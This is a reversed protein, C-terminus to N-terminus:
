FQLFTFWQSILNIDFQYALQAALKSQTFEVLGWFAATVIATWIMWGPISPAYPSKRIKFHAEGSDQDGRIYYLIWSSNKANGRRKQPGIEFAQGSELLANNTLPEGDSSVLESRVHNMVLREDDDMSIDALTGVGKVKTWRKPLNLSKPIGKSSLSVASPLTVKFRTGKKWKMQAPIKVFLIRIRKLMLWVFIVLFGYSILDSLYYSFPGVIPAALQVGVLPLTAPVSGNGTVSIIEKHPEVTFESRITLPIKGMDSPLAIKGASDVPSIVLELSTPNRSLPFPGYENDRVPAPKGEFILDLNAFHAGEVVFKDDLEVTFESDTTYNASVDLASVQRETSPDWFFSIDDAKLVVDINPKIFEVIVDIELPAIADTANIRVLGRYIGAKLLKFEPDDPNPLNVLVRLDLGTEPISFSTRGDPRVRRGDNIQFTIWKALSQGNPEAPAEAWQLTASIKKRRKRLPIPPAESIFSITLNESLEDQDFGLKKEQFDVRDISTTLEVPEEGFVRFRIPTKLPQDLGSGLSARLYLQYEGPRNPAIFSGSTGNAPFTVASGGPGTLSTVQGTLVPSQIINGSGDKVVVEVKVQDGVGYGVDPSPLLTASIDIDSYSDVYVRVTGRNASSPSGAKVSLEYTGKAPTPLLYSWVAARTQSTSNALTVEHVQDIGSTSPGTLTIDLDGQRYAEYNDFVVSVRLRDMGEPVDFSLVEQGSQLTDETIPNINWLQQQRDSFLARVEAVMDSASAVIRTGGGTDNGLKELLTRGNGQLGIGLAIIQVGDAQARQVIENVDFGADPEGDALLVIRKAGTQGSFHSFASRLAAMMNTGGNPAGLRKAELARRAVGSRELVGRTLSNSKTSFEIVGVKVDPDILELFDLAVNAAVSSFNNPDNTKMSGSRDLVFVVSSEARAIDSFGVIGFVIMALLMIIMPQMKCRHCRQVFSVKQRSPSDKM